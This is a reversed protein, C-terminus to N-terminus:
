AHMPFFSSGQAVYTCACCFSILTWVVGLVQPNHPTPSEELVCERGHAGYAGAEPVVM